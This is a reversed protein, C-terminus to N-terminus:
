AHRPTFQRNIAFVVAHLALLLAFSVCFVLVGSFTHFFGEAKDPGWYEGLLGSGMIRFANAAVAIPVAAVFLLVRRSTRSEFLYGYIASLTLLSVLSRLGSCAEAVDLTLSPLQIINGERLVPVGIWGLLSSALWSAQFQLPLAIQNFIIAPLPIMLFLCGWPFLVSRFTSWGRYYVVLGGVLFLLSTRSLFNEAGLVGLILMALAGFVIVLGGWSGNGPMQRLTKRQKWLVWACFFPVFFGHSYNPDQIWQSILGAVIKYYLIAILSGLSAVQLGARWDVIHATKEAGARGDINSDTSLRSFTLTGRGESPPAEPARAFIAFLKFVIDRPQLQLSKTTEQVDGGAWTLNAKLDEVPPSVM